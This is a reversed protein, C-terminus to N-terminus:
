GKTAHKPLSMLSDQVKWYSLIDTMTLVFMYHILDVSNEFVSM